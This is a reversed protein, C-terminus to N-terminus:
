KKKLCEREHTAIEARIMNILDTESKMKASIISVDKQVKELDEKIPNTILRMILYVFGSTTGVVLIGFSGGAFIAEWSM